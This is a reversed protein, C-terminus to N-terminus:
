RPSQGMSAGLVNLVSPPMLPIDSPLDPLTTPPTSAKQTPAYRVWGKAGPIYVPASPSVSGNALAAAAQEASAFKLPKFGSSNSELAPHATTPPEGGRKWLEYEQRLTPDFVLRDIGVKYYPNKEAESEIGSLSTFFDNRAGNAKKGVTAYVNKLLAPPVSQGEVIKRYLNEAKDKIGVQNAINEFEQQRIVAGPDNIKGESYLISFAESPNVKTWDIEGTKPDQYNSVLADLQSKVQRIGPHEGNGIYSTIPANKSMTDRLGQIYDEYNKQLTMQKEFAPDVPSFAASAPQGPTSTVSSVYLPSKSGEIKPVSIPLSGVLPLAGKDWESALQGPTGNGNTERQFNQTLELQLPDPLNHFTTKHAGLYANGAAANVGTAIPALDIGM